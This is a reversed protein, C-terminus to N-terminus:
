VPLVSRIEFTLLSKALVPKVERKDLTKKIVMTKPTSWTCTCIAEIDNADLKWTTSGFYCYWTAKRYAYGFGLSGFYRRLKELYNREDNQKKKALVIKAEERKQEINKELPSVYDGDDVNGTLCNFVSKCGECVVQLGEPSYLSGSMRSRCDPHVIINPEPMDYNGWGAYGKGKGKKTPRWNSAHCHPCRMRDMIIHHLAFKRDKDRESLTTFDKGCRNCHFKM